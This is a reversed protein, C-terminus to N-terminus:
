SPDAVRVGPSEAAAAASQESLQSAIQTITTSISGTKEKFFREVLHLRRVFFRVLGNVPYAYVDTEYAVKADPLRSIHVHVVSRFSGFFRRGWAFYVLDMENESPRGRHLETIDSRKQSRNIYYWRNSAVQEIVFPPLDSEPLTAEYAAQAEPLLNPHSFAEITEQFDVDLSGSTSVFIYKQELVATAGETGEILAAVAPVDKAAAGGANLAV